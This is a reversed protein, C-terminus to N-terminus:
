RLSPDAAQPAAAPAAGPDDPVVEFQVVNDGEADLTLDLDEKAAM